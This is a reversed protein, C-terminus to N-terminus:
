GNRRLLDRHEEADDSFERADDYDLRAEGAIEAANVTLFRLRERSPAM